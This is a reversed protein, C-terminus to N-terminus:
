CRRSLRFGVKKRAAIKEVPMYDAGVIFSKIRNIAIDRNKPFLEVGVWRRKLKEAAVATTGSNGSWCPKGNRRVYLIHNKNLTVDYVMGSYWEVSVNRWARLLKNGKMHTTLTYCPNDSRIIRNDIRVLPKQDGEIVIGSNGSLLLLAQLDDVMKKNSSWICNKDGDANRYGNIFNRISRSSLNFLFKPIEKTLSKGKMYKLIARLEPNRLMNTINIRFSKAGDPRNYEKWEINFKSLLYRIYEEKRQKKLNFCIRHKTRYGDGLWFGLLELWHKDIATSNTCIGQNQKYFSAYEFEDMRHLSFNTQHYEKAWIMHNPTVLLDISRGNIRYMKGEYQYSIRRNFGVFEIEDTRPSISCIKDEDLLNDFLKWGNDTLVETMSDFCGMFPDMVRCPVSLAKKCDCDQKWGITERYIPPKKLGCDDGGLIGRDQKKKLLAKKDVEVDKKSIKLDRVYPTKCKHCCGGESSGLKICRLPLEVPFTAFHKINKEKTTGMKWVSRLMNGTPSKMAYPDYYYQKSKSMLFIYEHNLGPRNKVSTPM